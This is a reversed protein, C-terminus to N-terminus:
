CKAIKQFIVPNLMNALFDINKGIDKKTDPNKFYRSHKIQNNYRKLLIISKTAYFDCVNISGFLNEQSFCKAGTLNKKPGNQM